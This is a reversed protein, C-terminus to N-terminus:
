RSGRIMLGEGRRCAGYQWEAMLGNEGFQTLILSTFPCEPTGIMKEVHFSMAGHDPAGSLIMSQPTMKRVMSLVDPSSRSLGAPPKLPINSFTTYSFFQGPVGPNERLEIALVWVGKEDMGKATWAGQLIKFHLYSPDAPNFPRPLEEPAPQPIPPTTAQATPQSADYVAQVMAQQDTPAPYRRMTAGAPIPAVATNVVKKQTALRIIEQRITVGCMLVAVFIAVIFGVFIFKLSAKKMEPM